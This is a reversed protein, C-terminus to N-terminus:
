TSSPPVIRSIPLGGETTRVLNFASRAILAVPIVSASETEQALPSVMTTPGVSKASVVDPTASTKVNFPAADPVTRIHVDSGGAVLPALHLIGSICTHAQSRVSM